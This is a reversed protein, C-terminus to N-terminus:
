PEEIDCGLYRVHWQRSGAWGESCSLLRVVWPPRGAAVCWAMQGVLLRGRSPQSRLSESHSLIAQSGRRFLGFGM